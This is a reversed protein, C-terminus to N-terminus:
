TPKLVSWHEVVAGLLNRAEAKETRSLRVRRRVPMEPLLGLLLKPLLLDTEAPFSEQGALHARLHVARHRHNESRFQGNELFDLASLLPAIFPHLLVLGANAIFFTNETKPSVLPQLPATGTKEDPSRPEPAADPRGQGPHQGSAGHPKLQPAIGAAPQSHELGAHTPKSPSVPAKDAATATVTQALRNLEAELWPLDVRWAREAIKQVWGARATEVFDRLPITRTPQNQNRFRRVLALEGARIREVVVSGGLRELVDYVLSPSFQWVLRRAADPQALVAALPVDSPEPPRHLLEARVTKELLFDAGAWWPRNGTALFRVFAELWAGPLDNRILTGSDTQTESFNGEAEALPATRSLKALLAAELAALLRGTGEREWAEATVAGLPVELRDIRYEGGGPALRDLLGELGTAFGASQVSAAVGQRLRFADESQAARLDFRLTRIRHPQNM